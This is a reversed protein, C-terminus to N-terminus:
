FLSLPPQPKPNLMADFRKEAQKSLELYDQRERSKQPSDFFAKQKDRMDRGLEKMMEIQGTLAKIHERLSDAGSQMGEIIICSDLLESDSCTKYHEFRNFIKDKEEDTASTMAMLRKHVNYDM